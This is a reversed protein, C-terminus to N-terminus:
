QQGSGKGFYATSSQGHELDLISFYRISTCIGFLVASRLRRISTIARRSKRRARWYNGSLEKITMHPPIHLESARNLLLLLVFSLMLCFIQSTTCAGMDLLAGALTGCNTYYYWTETKHVTFPSLVYSTHSTFNANWKWVQFTSITFGCQCTCDYTRRFPSLMAGMTASRM